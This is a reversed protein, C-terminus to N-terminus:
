HARPRRGAPPVLISRGSHIAACGVESLHVARQGVVGLRPLPSAGAASGTLGRASLAKPWMRRQRSRPPSGVDVRKSQSTKTRQPSGGQGVSVLAAGDPAVHEARRVPEPEVRAASPDLGVHGGARQVSPVVLSDAIVLHESGIGRRPLDTPEEGPRPTALDGAHDGRGSPFLMNTLTWCGPSGAFSRVLGAAGWPM